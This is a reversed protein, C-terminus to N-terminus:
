VAKGELKAPRVEAPQAAPIPMVSLDVWRPDAFGPFLLTHALRGHPKIGPQGNITLGCADAIMAVVCEAGDACAHKEWPVLLLDLDRTFSGHMVLAFGYQWAIIRATTFVKAYDPDIIGYPLGEPPEGGQVGSAPVAPQAARIFAEVLAAFHEIESWQCVVDTALGQLGAQRALRSIDARNM